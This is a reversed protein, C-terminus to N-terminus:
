WDKEQGMRTPEFNLLEMSIFGLEQGLVLLLATVVVYVPVIGLIWILFGKLGLDLADSDDSTLVWLSGFLVIFYLLFLVIGGLVSVIMGLIIFIDVALELSNRLFEMM